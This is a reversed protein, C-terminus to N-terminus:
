LSSLNASNVLCSMVQDLHMLLEDRLITNQSDGLIKLADRCTEASREYDGVQYLAVSLNDMANARGDRSEVKIWYTISEEYARIADSWQQLGAFAMGWNNYVGALRLVDNRHLLLREARYCERIADQWRETTLYLSSLNIHAIAEHTEDGIQVFIPISENLVEEAEDYRGLGRLPLSLNTLGFAILRPDGGQRWLRLSELLPLYAQEWQRHGVAVGGLMRYCVAREDYHDAPLCALAREAWQISQESEGQEQLIRAMGNCARVYWVSSPIHEFYTLAHRLSTFSDERKGQIRCINGLYVHLIAHTENDRAIRSQEIGRELLSTWEAYRGDREFAPNLHLLLDRADTWHEPRKLAVVLVQLLAAPDLGSESRHTSTATAEATAQRILTHILDSYNPPPTVVM